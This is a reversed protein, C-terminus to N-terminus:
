VFGLGPCDKARVNNSKARGNMNAYRKNNKIINPASPRSLEVAQRTSVLHSSHIHLPNASSEYHTMGKAVVEGRTV